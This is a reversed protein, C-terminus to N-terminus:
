RRLAESVMVLRQTKIVQLTSMVRRVLAYKTGQLPSCSGRSTRLLFNLGFRIWEGEYEIRYAFYHSGWFTRIRIGLIQPYM